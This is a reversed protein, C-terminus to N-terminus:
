CVQLKIQVDQTFLQAGSKLSHVPQMPPSLLLLSLESGNLRNLKFCCQTVRRGYFLLNLILSDSCQSTLLQITHRDTRARQLM